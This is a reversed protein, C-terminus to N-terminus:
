ILQWNRLGARVEDWDVNDLSDLENAKPNTPKKKTKLLSELRDVRKELEAIRREYIVAM